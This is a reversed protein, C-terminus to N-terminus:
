RSTLVIVMVTMMVAMMASMGIVMKGMMGMKNKEKPQNMNMDKMGDMMPCKMKVKETDTKKILEMGCKPCKGPKDSNIEPHMSCTYITTDQKTSDSVSKNQGMAPVAVFVFVMLTLMTLILNKTKM